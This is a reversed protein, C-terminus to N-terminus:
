VDDRDQEAVTGTQEVTDARAQSQFLDAGDIRGPNCVELVADHGSWAWSRGRGSERGVRWSGEVLPQKDPRSTRPQIPKWAHGCPISVGLQRVRDVVSEHVVREGRHEPLLGEQVVSDTPESIM